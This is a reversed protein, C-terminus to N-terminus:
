PTKEKTQTDRVVTRREDARAVANCLYNRARNLTECKGSASSHEASARRWAAENEASRAHRTTEETTFTAALTSATVSAVAYAGALTAACTLLGATLPKM